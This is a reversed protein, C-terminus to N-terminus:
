DASSEPTVPLQEPTLRGRQLLEFVPVRLAGDLDRDAAPLKHVFTTIIITLGGAGINVGCLLFAAFSPM